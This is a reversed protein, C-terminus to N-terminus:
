LDLMPFKPDLTYVYDYDAQSADFDLHARHLEARRMYLEANKPSKEIEKTIEVIQLHLDGHGSACAVGILLVFVIRFASDQAAFSRFFNLSIKACVVAFLRLCGRVVAFFRPQNGTNWPQSETAFIALANRAGPEKAIPRKTQDQM